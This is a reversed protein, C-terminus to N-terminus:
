SADVAELGRNKNAHYELIRHRSAERQEDTLQPRQYPRMIEAIEDFREVPFSVNVGDMGDQEVTVFDARKLKANTISHRPNTCAALLDPGWPCIHGLRCPIYDNWPDRVLPIERRVRYKEGFLERLNPCDM